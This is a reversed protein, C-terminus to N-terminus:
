CRIHFYKPDCATGMIEGAFPYNLLKLEAAVM